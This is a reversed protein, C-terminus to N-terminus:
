AAAARQALGLEMGIQLLVWEPEYVVQRRAFRIVTYGLRRLYDQRANDSEMRKRDRHFQVSDVEIILKLEPWCRDARYPGIRYQTQSPPAKAKRLIERLAAEAQSATIESARNPDALARIIRVGRHGPYRKTVAILAPRDVLGLALAEDVAKETEHAGLDHAAELLARAPMTVRLRECVGVDCQDLKRVRHFVVGDISRCNRGVVAVHLPADPEVEIVKWMVLSTQAALMACKGYALIAATERWYEVPAAHGVLYVGRFVPRLWGSRILRRIAHRDLGCRLLQSHEIVGRQRDAFLLIAILRKPDIPPM